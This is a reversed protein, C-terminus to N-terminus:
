TCQKIITALKVISSHMPLQLGPCVHAIVPNVRGLLELYHGSCNFPGELSAPILYKRPNLIWYLSQMIQMNSMLLLYGHGCGKQQGPPTAIRCSGISSHYCLHGIWISIDIHGCGSSDLHSLRSNCTKDM